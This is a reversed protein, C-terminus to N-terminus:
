APAAHDDGLVPNNLLARAAADDSVMPVQLMGKWVHDGKRHSFLGYWYRVDQVLKDPRKGLNIIMPDCQYRARCRAKDFLDPNADMMAQTQTASLGAPVHVFSVVDIDGPARGQLAEINEVFSGDLWQFGQEFGLQRMAARFDLLGSLILRREATTAFREVLELAGVTYPSSEAHTLAEGLFPPLVHSHNFDPIVQDLGEGCWPSLDVAYLAAQSRTTNL